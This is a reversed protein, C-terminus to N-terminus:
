YIASYEQENEFFDSGVIGFQLYYWFTNKEVKTLRKELLSKNGKLSNYDKRYQLFRQETDSSLPLGGLDPSEKTLNILALLVEEIHRPIKSFGIAKMKKMEDGVAILDKELMLRAIKYEFARMNHPSNKLLLEMCQRDDPVIFFDRDPMMGIKAGLESDSSIMAPNFLMMEYKKAWSKYHLTKKLVDIYRKAIRYNGNILETKILMKINEPTYGHQVMLEYALHHAEGILGISYYFYVARYTHEDNRPLTLSMPGYNQSGFFLRACLQDQEALALNYYYQKIINKSPFREHQKIVSEWDQEYVWKEVKMLDAKEPDWNRSLFYATVIILTFNVSLFIFNPNRLKYVTLLSLRSLLPFLIFCICLFILILTFPTRNLFLPYRLLHDVPQFFLVEKFLFFTVMGELIMMVPFYYRVPGRESVIAHICIMGLWIFSFTGTLYYVLPFILSCVIILNAKTLRSSILFCLSILLFGLSRHIFFEYDSQLVLLTCSPVLIILFSFLGTTSFKGGSRLLVICLLIPMVSIIVSGYFINFYGQTLFNGAYVLVGGPRLAFPKFYEVTYIFLIKNEQYFFIGNGFFCFYVASIIFLLSLSFLIVYRDIIKGEQIIRRLRGYTNNM